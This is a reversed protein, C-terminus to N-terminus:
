RCQTLAIIPQLNLLITRITPLIIFIVWENHTINESANALHTSPIGFKSSQQQKM